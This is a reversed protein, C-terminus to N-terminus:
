RKKRCKWPPQWGWQTWRAINRAYLDSGPRRVGLQQMAWAVARRTWAVGLRTTHGLENLRRAIRTIGLGQEALEQFLPKLDSLEEIARDHQLKNGVERGRASEEPTFGRKCLPNNAGLVAGRMKLQTLAAITRESIRRAEDEAVAALIHITLRNAHPNDCCVFDVGTEMLQSVLHVNRSLRDLKAVVLLARARRVYNVGAKLQPRLRRHKATEVETYSALIPLGHKISYAEVAMKQADLGLGSRGQKQTSVRYYAVIGRYTLEPLAIM